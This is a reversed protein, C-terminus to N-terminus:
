KAKWKDKRKCKYMGLGGSDLFFSNCHSFQGQKNTVLINVDPSIKFIELCFCSELDEIRLYIETHNKATNMKAFLQGGMYTTWLPKENKMSHM